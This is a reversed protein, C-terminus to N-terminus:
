APQWARQRLNVFVTEADANMRIALAWLLERKCAKAIVFAVPTVSYDVIVVAFQRFEL